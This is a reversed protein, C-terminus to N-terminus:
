RENKIIVKKLKDKKYLEILYDVKDFMISILYEKVEEPSTNIKQSTTIILNFLFQTIMYPLVEQPINTFLAETIKNSTKQFLEIFKDDKSLNKTTDLYNNIIEIFNSLDFNLTAKIEELRDELEIESM